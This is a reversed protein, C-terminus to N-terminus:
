KRCKGNDKERQETIEIIARGFIEPIQPVVANGLGKLRPGRNKSDTTVRPAGSDDPDGIYKLGELWEPADPNILSTRDDPEDVEIDTWGIPFGM